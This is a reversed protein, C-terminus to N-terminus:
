KMQKKAFYTFIEYIITISSYIVCIILLVCVIIPLYLFILNNKSDLPINNYIIYIVLIIVTIAMNAFVRYSHYLKKHPKNVITYVGIATFLFM